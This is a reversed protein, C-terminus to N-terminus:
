GVAMMAGSAGELVFLDLAVGLVTASKVTRGRV